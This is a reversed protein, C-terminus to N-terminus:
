DDHELPPIIPRQRVFDFRASLANWLEYVSRRGHVGAALVALRTRHRPARSLPRAARAHERLSRVRADGRRARRCVSSEGTAESPIRGPDAAPGDRSRRSLLDGRRARQEGVLVRRVRPWTACIRNGHLSFSRRSKGGTRRLRATSSTGDFAERPRLRLADALTPTIDELSAPAAIRMGARTPIGRARVLADRAAGSVLATRIRQNWARRAEGVLRHTPARAQRRRRSAPEGLRRATIRCCSSSRMRCRAETACCAPPRRVASGRSDGRAPIKGRSDRRTGSSWPAADFGLYPALPHANPTRGSVDARRLPAKRRAARHVHRPRLHCRRRSQRLHSSVLVAGAATNVLLNTLPTDAFFSLLFDSAGMPPAILERFGYTEDLNSFRVEDTAYITHYGADALLKPCHTAKTSSSARCCTLSRAPRIRTNARSLRCGPRSPAPSRPSRTPSSRRIRSSSTSRPCSTAGTRMM